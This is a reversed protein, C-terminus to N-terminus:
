IQHHHYIITQMMAVSVSKILLAGYTSYNGPDSFNLSFFYFCLFFGLYFPMEYAPPM